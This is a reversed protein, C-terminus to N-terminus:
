DKRNQQELWSSLIIQAAQGDVPKATLARYGGEAFIKDRAERTSLREDSMYVPLQYREELQKAFKKAATTIAQTTGDMNLPLGVVLATPQWENIIKDFVSWDPVGQKANVVGVISATATILQGVAVGIRNTGFDIGLINGKIKVM